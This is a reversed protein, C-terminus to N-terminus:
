HNKAKQIERSFQHSRLSHQKSPAHQSVIQIFHEKSLSKPLVKAFNQYDESIISPLINIALNQSIKKFNLKFSLPINQKM